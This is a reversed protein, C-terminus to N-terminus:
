NKHSYISIIKTDDFDYKSLSNLEEVLETGFYYAVEDKVGDYLSLTGGICRVDDDEFEIAPKLTEHSFELPFLCCVVPKLEHYDIQLNFCLEHIYCNEKKKNFFVCSQENLNTRVYKSGPYHEDAIFENAFWDKQPIKMVSELLKANKMINKFSINDVKTGYKCCNDTCLNCSMCFGNYKITFIRTDIQSIAMENYLHYYKKDLLVLM